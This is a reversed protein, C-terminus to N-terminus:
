RRSAAGPALSVRPPQGFQVTRDRQPSRRATDLTRNAVIDPCRQSSREHRLREVM